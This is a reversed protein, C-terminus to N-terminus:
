YYKLLEQFFSLIAALTQTYRLSSSCSTQRCTTEPNVVEILSVCWSWSCQNFTMFVSKASSPHCSYTPEKSGRQRKGVGFCRRHSTIQMWKSHCTPYDSGECSQLSQETAISGKLSKELLSLSFAGAEHDKAFIPFFFQFQRSLESFWLFVLYRLIFVQVHFLISKEPPTKWLVWSDLIEIVMGSFWPLLKLRYKTTIQPM